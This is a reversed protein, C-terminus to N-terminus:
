QDFREFDYGAFACGKAAATGVMGLMIALAVCVGFSSVKMPHSILSFNGGNFMHVRAKFAKSPSDDHTM